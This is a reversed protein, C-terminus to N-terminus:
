TQPVSYRVNSLVISCYISSTSGAAFNYLNRVCEGSLIAIETFISSLHCKLSIGINYFNNRIWTNIAQFIEDLLTSIASPNFLLAIWIDLWRRIWGGSGRGRRGGILAVKVGLVTGSDNNGILIYSQLAKTPM